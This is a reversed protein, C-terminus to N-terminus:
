LYCDKPKITTIRLTSPQKLWIDDYLWCEESTTLADDGGLRNMAQCLSERLQEDSLEMAPMEGLDLHAGPGEITLQNIDPQFKPMGRRFNQGQRSRSNRGYPPMGDFSRPM